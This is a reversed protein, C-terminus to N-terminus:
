SEDEEEEEAIDEYGETRMDNLGLEENQAHSRHYHSIKLRTDDKVDDTLSQVYSGGTPDDLILTASMKGKLIEDLQRFFKNMKEKQDTDQSDFFMGSQEILQEKIAILLGEVTTFRGCLAHPGIDCELELISLSCFESKLLDRSFDEKSSVVVEIRVGKEAIGGSSKVENSRHGCNDCNTAMIVVEKFHPIKTLKMNTDCEQRCDPCETKFQMVEKDFEELPYAGQPIMKLINDKDETNENKEAVGDEETDKQVFMGLLENQEKTRTFHSIKMNPDSSPALFNEIFCNGSADTLILNFPQKMEKLGKLKEIFQDIQAAAEPHQIRRLIQDQDLGTIVREIIGEVTTIEGKQSGAPIEFDLEEIRVSSYDSKIVKRCLDRECSVKLHIKVGKSQIKGGPQIENNEYGCHNCTFSMIVVEKYFPIVTLLLRTQGQEHCNMCLSDIVTAEPDPDDPNLERFLPKDNQVITSETM